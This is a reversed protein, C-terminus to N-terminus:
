GKIFGHFYSLCPHVPLLTLVRALACCAPTPCPVCTASAVCEQFTQGVMSPPSALHRCLLLTIPRTIFHSTHSVKVRKVDPDEKTERTDEHTDSPNVAELMTIQDLKPHNGVRHLDDLLSDRPDHLDIHHGAHSGLGDDTGSLTSFNLSLTPQDSEDHHFIHVAQSSLCHAQHPQGQDDSTTSISQRAADLGSMVLLHTTPQTRTPTTTNGQLFAQRSSHKPTLEWESPAWSKPHRSFMIGTTPCPGKRSVQDDMFHAVVIMRRGDETCAEHHYTAPTSLHYLSVSEERWERKPAV